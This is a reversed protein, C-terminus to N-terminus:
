KVVVVKKTPYEGVKVLYVGSNPVKINIQGEYSSYTNSTEYVTRGM